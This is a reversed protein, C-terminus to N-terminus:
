IIIKEATLMDKAAQLASNTINIGGIIRALESIKGEFSLLELSTSTKNETSTKKILYHNDALAAIQALHTICIVQKGKSVEYLKLGIKEAAKGSVGTDVEDFIMTATSDANSLVTKMSLMIRSLEGGSAIKSIPKPEEGPNASILFELIDIGNQLFKEAEKINVEFRVKPMDLFELENQIREKLVGGAKKRSETIKEAQSKLLEKQQALKINLEEITTENGSLAELEERCTDAYELLEEENKGYKKQLRYLIDLREEVTELRASSFDSKELSASLESSIDRIEYKIESIRRCLAKFDPSFDGCQELHNECESILAAINVENEYLVSYANSAGSIIKESNSLINKESKLNETEGPVLVAGDIETIKYTLSEIRRQKEDEDIKLASIKNRLSKASDFYSKYEDKLSQNEAFSDVYDIHTESRLLGQNDHQGHINVLLEGVEKLVSLTVPRGNIKSTSRGDSFLERQILLNGDEEPTVGNETLIIDFKKPLSTFVAGVYASKQGTRILEKSARQGLAMQIADILISKGAGTEGTLIIFGSDFNIDIKEIVAINEIHLSSLM